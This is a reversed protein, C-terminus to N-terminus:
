QLGFALAAIAVLAALQSFVLTRTQTTVADSIRREFHEGMTALRADLATFRQDLQAQLGVFRQDAQDFRRDVEDFRDDVRDLREDMRDLREDVRDLRRGVEAFREDVSAFQGDVGAFRLGVEAFGARLDQRTAPEHGPPILLEFLTDAAEQGWAAAAQGHLARRRREDVAM